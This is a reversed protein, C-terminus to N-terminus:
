EARSTVSSSHRAPSARDKGGLWDFCPFLQTSHLKELLVYELLWDSFMSQAFFHLAFCASFQSGSDIPIANGNSHFVERCVKGDHGVKVHSIDGPDDQVVFIFEDLQDAEFANSFSRSTELTFRLAAETKVKPFLEIFVKADTGAHREQATKM